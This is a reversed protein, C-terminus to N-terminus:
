ERANTTSLRRQNVAVDSAKKIILLAGLALAALSVTSGPEPVAAVSGSYQFFSLETQSSGSLTNDGFAAMNEQDLRVVGGLPTSGLSVNDMFLEGIGGSVVVRYDHFADTTNMNIRPVGNSINQHLDTNLGLGNSDIGLTFRRGLADVADIAWGFRQENEGGAWQIM